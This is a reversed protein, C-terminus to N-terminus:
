KLAPISGNLDWITSDWGLTTALDSLTGTWHKGHYPYQPYDPQGSALSVAATEEGNQNVLPHASSVNPHDYNADPVWYATLVMDPSRYNDTMTCTPFTAGAVAGSSWNAVGYTAPTVASNWAACHQMTFAAGGIVGVLGGLAFGSGVVSGSAFCNSITATGKEFLGILGGSYANATVNGTAYCDTIVSSNSTNTILGVLGGVNRQIGSVNGTAYSKEITGALMKGVLGGIDRGNTTQNVTVSSWCHSIKSSAGEFYGVLGGLGIDKNSTANTSVLSGTSSCNTFNGYGVGAIGGVNFLGTASIDTATCDVVSIGSDVQGFMGGVREATSEVTMNSVHCDAVSESIKCLYGAIGGVRNKTGGTVSSNKVTIGSINGIISGTGVYGALVGSTNAGATIQAGDFTLDKVRGNLMGVLSPYAYTGSVTLNSITKRNGDLDIARKYDGARNLPVWAIGTMDIDDVLKVSYDLEEGADEAEQYRAMLYAMQHQDGILYPSISSGDDSQGAYKDINQCDLGFTNVKGAKITMGELVRYATYKDYANEGTQFQVLLETDAAIVQDGAPLTAYVTLIKSDGVKASANLNVTLKDSGAFINDGAKFIVAKVNGFLADPIRARLCLVSSSELTGSEESFTFNTYNTVGSLTAEYKLHATDGNAAQTQNAYSFNSGVSNYTIIYSSAEALVTGTFTASKTGAGTALTFTQTNSSNSADTVTIQDGDQWTLDIRKDTANDTFAVKSLGDEPFSAAITIQKGEPVIEDSPNAMEKSCSVMMALAALSAWAFISYKKM